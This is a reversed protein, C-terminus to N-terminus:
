EAVHLKREETQIAGEGVGAVAELQRVRDELEASQILQGLIQSGYLLTRARAADLPRTSGNMRLERLIGSVFARVHPIKALKPGRKTTTVPPKHTSASRAASVTMLM